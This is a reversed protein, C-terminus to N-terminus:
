DRWPWKNKQFSEVAIWVTFMLPWIIAGLAAKITRIPITKIMEQKEKRAARRQEKVERKTRAEGM